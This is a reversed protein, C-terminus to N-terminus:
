VAFETRSLNFGKNSDPMRGPIDLGSLWDADWAAPFVVFDM